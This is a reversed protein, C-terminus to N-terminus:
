DSDSDNIIHTPKKKTASKRKHQKFPKSVFSKNMAIDEQSHEKLNISASIRDVLESRKGSIKLNHHKCIERLDALTYKNLESRYIMGTTDHFSSLIKTHVPKEMIKPIVAVIDELPLKHTDSLVKAYETLDREIIQRFLTLQDGTFNIAQNPQKDM